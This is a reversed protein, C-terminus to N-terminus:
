YFKTFVVFFVSTLFIKWIKSFSRCISRSVELYIKSYNILFQPFFVLDNQFFTLNVKSFSPVKLFLQTAVEFFNQFIKFCITLISFHPSGYFFFKPFRSPRKPDGSKIVRGRLRLGFWENCEAIEFRCGMIFTRFYWAWPRSFSPRAPPPIKRNSYSDNM